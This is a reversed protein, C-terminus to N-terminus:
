ISCKAIHCNVLAEVGSISTVLMFAQLAYKGLLEKVNLTPEFWFLMQCLEISIDSNELSQM